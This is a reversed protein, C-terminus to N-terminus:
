SAAPWLRRVPKGDESLLLLSHRGAKVADILDFVTEAREPLVVSTYYRMPGRHNDSGAMRILGYSECFFCAREDFDTREMEFHAANFAEAGDCSHPYLSIHRIWSAERFPHAHVAFGGDKRVLDGYEDLPMNELWPKDYLWNEDLGYTLFETGGYNFEWGPFVDLGINDGEAKADRYGAFFMHVRDNWPIDGPICCNGNFFHDTVVIGTHGIKKYHRAIDRGSISGCRSAQSTHCHTEYRYEPM